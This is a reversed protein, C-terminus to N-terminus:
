NYVLEWTAWSTLPGSTAKEPAPTVYGIYYTFVGGDVAKEVLPVRNQLPDAPVIKNSKDLTNNDNTSLALFIHSAGDARTNRLYGANENSVANVTFGDVWRVNVLHIANKDAAGGDHRLQCNSIELTFPQPKMFAGAGREHVEALSVPALWVSGSGANNGGNLAVSCSIDTVQGAFDVRGRDYNTEFASAPSAILM